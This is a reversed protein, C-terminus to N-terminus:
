HDEDTGEKTKKQGIYSVPTDVVENTNKTIIVPFVVTMKVCCMLM